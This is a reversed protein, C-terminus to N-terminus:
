ASPSHASTWQPRLISRVLLPVALLIMAPELPMRYRYNGYLVFAYLVLSAGLLIWLAREPPSLPRSRWAVVAALLTLALLGYFFLDALNGLPM